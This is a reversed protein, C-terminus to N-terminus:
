DTITTLADSKCDEMADRLIGGLNELNKLLQVKKLLEEQHKNIHLSIVDYLEPIHM